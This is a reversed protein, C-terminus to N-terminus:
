YLFSNKKGGVDFITQKYKNSYCLKFNHCPSLMVASYHSAPITTSETNRKWYILRSHGKLSVECGWNHYLLASISVIVKLKLDKLGLGHQTLLRTTFMGDEAAHWGTLNSHQIAIHTGDDTIIFYPWQHSTQFMLFEKFPRNCYYVVCSLICLRWNNLRWRQHLGQMKGTRGRSRQSSHLSRLWSLALSPM